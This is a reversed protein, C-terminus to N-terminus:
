RMTSPELLTLGEPDIPNGRFSTEFVTGNKFEFTGPGDKKGPEMTWQIKAWLALSSLREWARAM